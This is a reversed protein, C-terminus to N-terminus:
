MEIFVLASWLKTWQLLCNDSSCSVLIHSATVDYSLQMPVEHRSHM